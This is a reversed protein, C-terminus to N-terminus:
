SATQMDIVTVNVSM